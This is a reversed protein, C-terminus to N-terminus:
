SSKRALIDVTEDKLQHCTRGLSGKTEKQVEHATPPNTDFSISLLCLGDKYLIHARITTGGNEVVHGVILFRLKTPLTM